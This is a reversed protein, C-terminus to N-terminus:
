HVAGAADSGGLGADSYRLYLIAVAFLANVARGLKEDFGPFSFPAHCPIQHSCCLAPELAPLPSAGAYCHHRAVPKGQGEM